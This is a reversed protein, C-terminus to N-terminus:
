LQAVALTLLGTVLILFSFGIITWVILTKLVAGFISSGYAGRLTQFMNIPAWFALAGFVYPMLRVPTLFGLANTLFAFSLLNMAVLLHDYLFVDKRRRYVLALSLAVIPLLIVALRHAWTFVLAWYYDPNSVARHARLQWWTKSYRPSNGAAPNQPNAPLGQAIREARELTKSYKARAQATEREYIARVQEATEDRDKLEDARDKAAERLEDGLTKSAETRLRAAEAARGQPTALLVTEAAKKRQEAATQQHTANEAAFIFLVLAVLFTRFPPVHRALRGEIYDRALRGPSLFLAPLTRLFRGDMEFLGEIAEWALHRISRKHTDCNQGCVHCYRGQLLAGCNLCHTGPPPPHRSKPRAIEVISDAAAAELEGSV